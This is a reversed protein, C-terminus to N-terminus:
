PPWAQKEEYKNGAKMSRYVHSTSYGHHYNKHIISRIFENEMLQTIKTHMYINLRQAM